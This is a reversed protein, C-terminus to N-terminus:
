GTHARCIEPTCHVIWWVTHLQGPRCTAMINSRSHRYSISALSVSWTVTSGCRHSPHELWSPLTLGQLPALYDASTIPPVLLFLRRTGTIMISLLLPHCV